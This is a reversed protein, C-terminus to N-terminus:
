RRCVARAPQHARAPRRCCWRGGGRWGGGHVATVGSGLLRVGQQRHVAAVGVGAPVSRGLCPQRLAEVVTVQRGLERAVAALELGILGAGVVVLPAQWRLRRGLRRADGATPLCCIGELDGGSVNLRRPSAGTALLVSDAALTEGDGLPVTGASPDISQVRRGLRPVVQNSRLQDAPVIPSLASAVDDVDVLRKSLPPREYPPHPEAGVVVIQGTFGARRSAMAASVGAASAGIM